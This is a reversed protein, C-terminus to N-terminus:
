KLFNIVLYPWFIVSGVIAATLAAILVAGAGLDKPEGMALFATESTNALFTALKELATNFVEAVLVLGACLCILMWDFQNIKFSIGLGIVLLLILLHFKYNQQNWALRLGM